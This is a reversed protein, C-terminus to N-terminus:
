KPISSFIFFGMAIMCALITALFALIVLKNNKRDDSMPIVGKCSWTVATAFLFNRRSEAAVSPFPKPRRINSLIPVNALCKEMIRDTAIRPVKASDAGAINM